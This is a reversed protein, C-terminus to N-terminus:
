GKRGILLVLKHSYNTNHAVTIGNHKDLIKHHERCVLAFSNSGSQQLFDQFTKIM